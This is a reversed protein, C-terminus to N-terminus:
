LTLRSSLEAAERESLWGEVKLFSLGTAVDKTFASNKLLNNKEGLGLLQNEFLSNQKALTEVRSILASIGKFRPTLLNKVKSIGLAGKFRVSFDVGNVTSPSLCLYRRSVGAEYCIVYFPVYVLLTSRLQPDSFGLNSFGASFTERQSINNNIDEIIPKELSLLRNSEQKFALMKANRTEELDVIPQRLLKIEADLQFNVKSLDQGKQKTLRKINDEINKFEKKLGSLEKQAAKAKEKWRKEYVRHGSKGQKKAEQEFYRIDAQTKEILKQTKTKLKQLNELERDFSSTLHRIKAKFTKNLKAIQPKIFEEQARIKADAEEKFAQANFEIESIYQSSIKNILRLIEEAKAQENRFYTQLKDMESLTSSITNEELIHRLLPTPQTIEVAEKRYVSFEFKLSADTIIGRIPFQKWKPGVAFYSRNNSLFATYNERPRQNVQLNEMFVSASPMEGYPVDVPTDNLGDFLLASNNKPFMWIPCGAKAIFAISEESQKILL